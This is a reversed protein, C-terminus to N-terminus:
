LGRELFIQRALDFRFLCSDDTELLERKNAHTSLMSKFETKFSPVDPIEFRFATLLQHMESWELTAKNEFNVM